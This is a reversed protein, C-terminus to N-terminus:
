GRTKNRRRKLREDANAAFFGCGCSGGANGAAVPLLLLVPTLEL